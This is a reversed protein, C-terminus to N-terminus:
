LFHVVKTESTKRRYSSEPRGSEPLSRNADRDRPETRVLMKDRSCLIVGHWLARGQKLASEKEGCHEHPICPLYFKKRM